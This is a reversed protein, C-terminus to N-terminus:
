KEFHISNALNNMYTELKENDDQNYTIATIYAIKDNDIIYYLFDTEVDNETMVQVRSRVVDYGNTTKDTEIYYVDPNKKEQFYKDMEEKMEEASGLDKKNVEYYIQVMAPYDKKDTIEKTKDEPENSIYKYYSWGEEKSYSDLMSWDTPLEFKINEDWITLNESTTRVVNLTVVTAIAIAIVICAAMYLIRKKAKENIENAVCYYYKGKYKKIINLETLYRFYEKANENDTEALVEEKLITNEKTTANYKYFIKKLIRIAENKLDPNKKDEFIVIKYDERKKFDILQNRIRIAVLLSGLVAFTESIVFNRFIITGYGNYSYLQKITHFTAPYNAQKLTLLTVVLLLAGAVTLITIILNIAIVKKNLKGRCLGYGYIAGLPILMPLMSLFTSKYVYVYVLPICAVVAGIIAGLIGTIYRRQKMM